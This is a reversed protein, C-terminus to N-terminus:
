EYKTNGTKTYGDVSNEKSWIVDKSTEVYRYYSITEYEGNPKSTTIEDSAFKINLKLPVFYVSVKNKSDYYSKVGNLNNVIVKVDVYYNGKKYYPKLKYSINEKTLSYNNITSPATIKKSNDISVNNEKIYNNEEAIDFTNVEEVTTFYYNKNPVNSLKLTYTISDSNIDKENIYGLTYYTKDAVSYYEYKNEINDGTLNGRTWNSYTKTEKVFEYYTTKTESNTNKVEKNETNKVEKNKTEKKNEKKKSAKKTEKKTEKKEKELDEKCNKCDKFSFKKTITDKEKGCQLSTEVIYDKKQRTIKSYSKDTDCINEGDKNVSVILKKDIMEKLTIKESKGTKRPLDITKFYDVSVKEMNNINNTFTSSLKNVGIIKSVLWIIILAFIFIIVMKIFLGLWNIRREDEM